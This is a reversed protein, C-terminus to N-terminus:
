VKLCCSCKCTALDFKNRFGLFKYRKVVWFFIIQLDEVVPFQGRWKRSAFVDNVQGGLVLNSSSDVKALSFVALEWDGLKKGRGSLLM